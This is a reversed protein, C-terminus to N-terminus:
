VIRNEVAIIIEDDINTIRKVIIDLYDNGIRRRLLEINNILDNYPDNSAKEPLVLKHLTFKSLTKYRKIDKILTGIFSLLVQNLEDNKKKLLAKLSNFAKKELAIASSGSQYQPKYIKIKEYTNWFQKDLPLRPENYDCRVM